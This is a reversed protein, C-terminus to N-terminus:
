SLIKQVLYQWWGLNFRYDFLTFSVGVFILSAVVFKLPTSLLCWCHAVRQFFNPYGRQQGPKLWFSLIGHIVWDHAFPSLAVVDRGFQEKGGFNRYQMHHIAYPCYKGKATTGVVIWPFMSCRFHSRKLWDKHKNRWAASQIFSSYDQRKSKINSVRKKMLKPIILQIGLFKPNKPILFVQM